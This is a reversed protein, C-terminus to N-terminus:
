RPAARKPQPKVIKYDRPPAFLAPDPEQRSFSEFVYETRFGPNGPYDM